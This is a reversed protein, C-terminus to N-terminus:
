PLENMTSRFHDRIPKDDFPPNTPIGFTQQIEMETAGASRMSEAVPAIVSQVEEESAGALRMDSAISLAEAM